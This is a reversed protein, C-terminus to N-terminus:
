KEIQKVTYKTWFDNKKEIMTFIKEEADIKRNFYGFSEDQTWKNNEKKLVIFLTRM